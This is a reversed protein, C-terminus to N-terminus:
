APVRAGKSEFAAIVSKFIWKGDDSGLISESAREPHPMLGAVNGRENCVGAINLLSGNPNATETLNGSADCYQWLIRRNGKLTELTTEDAFYCGEGHAIPIKLIKGDPISNTFPSDFKNTKLFVHECHFQLDRNRVLAGPLMGAECLIQFGNCLGLVLGGNDAFNRVVQMVPSFRAIAGTRLYDGYSFGGPIIVADADGLSSEKHWVLRSSHGLARVAHVSDQDCNSAPFQLVAFKM